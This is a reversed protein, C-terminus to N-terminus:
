TMRKRLRLHKKCMMCTMCSNTLKFRLSSLQKYYQKGIQTVQDENSYVKETINFFLDNLKELVDITKEDIWMDYSMAM